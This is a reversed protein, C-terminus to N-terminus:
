KACSAKLDEVLAVSVGNALHLACDKPPPAVCETLATAVMTLVDVEGKNPREVRKELPGSGNIVTVFAFPYLPPSADVFPLAHEEFVDLDDFPMATPDVFLLALERNQWDWEKRRFVYEPDDKAKACEFRHRLKWDRKQCRANCYVVKRCGACRNIFAEDSAGPDLVRAGCSACLIADADFGPSRATLPLGTSRRFKARLAALTPMLAVGVVSGGGGGLISAYWRPRVAAAPTRPLRVALALADGIRGWPAARHMQAAATALARAEPVGVGSSATLGPRASADSRTARGSNVLKESFRSVYDGVGDALTLCQTEIGLPALLPRVADADVESVFSVHTPRCRREGTGPADIHSLLFKLLARADPKTSAPKSITQNTVKGRPYLELVVIYWPRCAQDAEDAAWLRLQVAALQLALKQPSQPVKLARALATSLAADKRLPHPASTPATETMTSGPTM